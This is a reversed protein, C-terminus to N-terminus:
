TVQGTGDEVQTQIPLLDFDHCYFKKGDKNYLKSSSFVKQWKKEIVQFNVREM